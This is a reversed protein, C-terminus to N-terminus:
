LNNLPSNAQMIKDQIFKRNPFTHSLFVHSTYNGIIRQKSQKSLPIRGKTTPLWKASQRQNRMATLDWSSSAESHRQLAPHKHTMQIVTKIVAPFNAAQKCFTCYLLPHKVLQKGIGGNLVVVSCFCPTVPANSSLKKLLFVM